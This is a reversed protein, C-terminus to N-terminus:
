GGRKKLAHIAQVLWSWSIPPCRGHVLTHMGCRSPVIAMAIAWPSLGFFQGVVAAPLSLTVLACVSWQVWKPPFPPTPSSAM